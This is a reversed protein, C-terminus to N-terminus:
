SQFLATLDLEAMRKEIEAQQSGNGKLEKFLDAKQQRHEMQKQRFIKLQEENLLQHMHAVNGHHLSQLKKKYMVPDSSQLDEIEGLNRYKREQVELMKEQQSADLRYLATLTEMTQELTPLGDNAQAFVGGCIFLLAISLILNKM